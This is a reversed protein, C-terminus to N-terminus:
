RPQMPRASANETTQTPQQTASSPVPGRSLALEALEDYRPQLDALYEQWRQKNWIEIRDGVGILAVDGDLKALQALEVPVRIRGQSDIEVSRAQAYLLRSFARVDQGNPSREALQQAIAEFTRSAFLSLSGDTGPTLVLQNEGALAERFAKPVALRLKEDLQREYTGTLVMETNRDAGSHGM